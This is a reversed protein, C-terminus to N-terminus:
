EDDLVEMLEDFGSEFRFDIHIDGASHVTIREILADVLQATLETDSDVMAFKEAISAYHKMQQELESRKAKLQRIREQSYNGRMERYEAETLVGDVLHEYLGNLFMKSKHVRQSLVGIEQDTRANQAAVKSDHQKLQLRGGFMVEAKQRVISLILEFLRAETLYVKAPCAGKKTRYNTLCYYCYGDGCSTRHRHLASGCGGCFMKGKLINETYPKKATSTYKQRM